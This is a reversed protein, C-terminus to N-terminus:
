TNPFTRLVNRCYRKVFQRHEEMTLASNGRTVPSFGGRALWTLLSLARERATESDHCAVSELLENWTQQPDM